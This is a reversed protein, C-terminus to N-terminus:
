LVGLIMLTNVVAWEKDRDEAIDIWVMDVGDWKKFIRKSM